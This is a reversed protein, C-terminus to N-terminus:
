AIACSLSGCIRRLTQLGTPHSARIESYSGGAHESDSTSRWQSRTSTPLHSLRQGPRLGQYRIARWSWRRTLMWLACRRPRPARKSRFVPPTCTAWRLPPMCHSSFTLTPLPSLLSLLSYTSTLPSLLPLPSLPFLLKSRHAVSAKKKVCHTTDSLMNFQADEDDELDNEVVTTYFTNSSGKGLGVTSAKQLLRFFSAGDCTTAIVHIQAYILLYSVHSWLLPEVEDCTADRMAHMGVVRRLTKETIFYQTLTHVFTVQFVLM